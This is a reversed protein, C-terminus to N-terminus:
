VFLYDPPYKVILYLVKQILIVVEADVKERESLYEPTRQSTIDMARELYDDINNETITMDTIFDFLEKVTM